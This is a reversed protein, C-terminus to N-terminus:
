LCLFEGRRKRSVAHYKKMRKRLILLSVVASMMVAGAFTGVVIAALAGKGLGSSGSPAIVTLNTLVILIFLLM